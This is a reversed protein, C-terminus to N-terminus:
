CYIGFNSQYIVTQYGIYQEDFTKLSLLSSNKRKLRNKGNTMSIKLADFNFSLYNKNDEKDKRLTQKDEYNLVLNNFKGKFPFWYFVIHNSQYIKNEKQICIM